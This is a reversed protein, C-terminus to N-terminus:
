NSNVVFQAKQRNIASRVAPVLLLALTIAMEAFLYGGNYVMSYALPNWGEWAYSAFFLVGSLTSFVFRGLVGVVYGTYLGYKQKWFFGSLGLAGFAVPYDM